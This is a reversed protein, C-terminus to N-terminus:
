ICRIKREMVKEGVSKALEKVKVGLDKAGAAQKESLRSKKCRFVQATAALRIKV